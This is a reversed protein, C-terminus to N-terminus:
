LAVQCFLFISWLIAVKDLSLVVSMFPLRMVSHRGQKSPTALYNCTCCNQRRATYRNLTYFAAALIGALWSKALLWTMVFLAAVLLGHLAFVSKIYFFIAGGQICFSFWYFWSLTRFFLSYIPLLFQLCQSIDVDCDFQFFFPVNVNFRHVTAM